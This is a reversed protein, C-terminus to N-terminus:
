EIVVNSTTPVIQIFTNGDNVEITTGNTYTYNTKASRSSKTWNIPVAYGNTIYYGTGSGVTTLDQRGESDLTTNEVKMIIINKYNLQKNTTKDLHASGNMSRLYYKNESDYTYSRTQYYSYEMEVKDAKITGPYVTTNDESTTEGLNIEDVSYNLLKWNSTTSSYGKTSLYNRIKETSTFVNHPSTANSDRWFVTSDTMGNINNVGLSTIDSQAKPSWGYHVYVVGSELAYDLFYHRSSRVPGILSVDKDKYLAMIRTLGGEVIMEYNLYSDQLGAHLEDGINNDIMVAIPREDSDEDVIQLKKKEIITPEEVDIEKEVSNGSQLIYYTILIISLSLFFGALYYMKIQSKKKKKKSKKTNSEDVIEFKL